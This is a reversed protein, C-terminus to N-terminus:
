GTHDRDDVVGNCLGRKLRFNGLDCVLHRPPLGADSGVRQVLPAPPLPPGRDDRVLRREALLRHVRGDLLDDGFFRGDLLWRDLLRRDILGGGILCGDILGGDFLRDCRNGCWAPTTPPTST